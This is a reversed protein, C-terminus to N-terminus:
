LNYRVLVTLSKQCDKLIDSTNDKNLLIKQVTNNILTVVDKRNNLFVAHQLNNMQKASTLRATEFIDGTKVKTYFSSNLAKKNTALVNTLKALELQNEYNTMYLAFKLAEDRKKSKLPIVFNMMSFNYGDNTIQSSIGINKFTEPANEKILNLFNSGGEFLITEGAMFKELAERHTMTISEKSLCSNNYAKQINGFFNEAKDSNIDSLSIGAKSLMKLAYDGDTLTMAMLAKSKKDRKACIKFLEYYNQPPNTNLGSMLKKNYITVASTAYWPILYNKENIKLSNIIANPFQSLEEDSFSYLTGKQALLASFDPNLNILDPPNDSLVSALTRKEGESFPIDVWKIKIEPNEKEFNSIVDNMYGSFDRMQLTWFVLEDNKPSKKCVVVYTIIVLIAVFTIILAKKM